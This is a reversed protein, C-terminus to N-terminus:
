LVFFTFFALISFILHSMKPSKWVSHTMGFNNITNLEINQVFKNKLAFNFYSLKHVFYISKAVTHTHIHFIPHVRQLKEIKLWSVITLSFWNTSIIITWTFSGRKEWPTMMLKSLNIWFLCLCNESDFPSMVKFNLILTKEQLSLLPSADINAFWELGSTNFVFANKFHNALPTFM